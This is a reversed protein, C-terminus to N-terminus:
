TYKYVDLVIQFSFFMFNNYNFNFYIGQSKEVPWYKINQLEDVPIKASM